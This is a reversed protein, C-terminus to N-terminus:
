STVTLTELRHRVAGVDVELETLVSEGVNEIEYCMNVTANEGVELDVRGLCPDDGGESLWSAVEIGTPAVVTPSPVLTLTITALDVQDRLTRLQGRLTELTTERDLLQDELQAIVALDGAEGLLARLRQVSAEATNIRSQLDVVRETVDDASITQDVLRGVGALRELAIGFDEPLVKFVLVTVPEPETRTQQGFVLGGLGDIVQQAERGAAAVDDVEVSITARFVIDRGIDAPTLATPTALGPGRDDGVDSADAAGETDERATADDGAGGDIAGGADDVSDDGAFDAADDVSDDGAFDAASGGSDDGSCAALVLVLVVLLASGRRFRAGRSSVARSEGTRRM